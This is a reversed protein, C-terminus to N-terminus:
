DATTPHVATLAPLQLHRLAEPPDTEEPLRGIGLRTLALGVSPRSTVVCIPMSLVLGGAMLIFVYPLAAPQTAALVALCTTGLLTQPWLQRLATSWAISHDDRVQGIWGIARGFPLGALLLTHGVWMIPSLLLFFATEVVVSALFRSTGGFRRRLDPRSLVDIVTAMKPAFWMLLIVALLAAGYGADM